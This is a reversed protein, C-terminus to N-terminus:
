LCDRNVEKHLKYIHILAVAINGFIISPSIVYYGYYVWLLAGIINIVRLKKIDSVTFSTLVFATAVFGLVEILSM